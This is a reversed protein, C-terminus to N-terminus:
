CSFTQCIVQWKDFEDLKKVTLSKRLRGAVYTYMRYLAFFTLTKYDCNRVGYDYYRHM